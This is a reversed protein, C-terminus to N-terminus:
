RHVCEKRSTCRKRNEGSAGVCKMLYEVVGSTSVNDTVIIRYGSYGIMQTKKERFRAKLIM